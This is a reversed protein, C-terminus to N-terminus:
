SFVTSYELGKMLASIRCFMLIRILAELILDSMEFLIFDGHHLCCDHRGQGWFAAHKEIIADKEFHVSLSKASPKKKQLLFPKVIKLGPINM